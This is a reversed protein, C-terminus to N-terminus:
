PLQLNQANDNDLMLIIVLIMMMKLQFKIGYYAWTVKEFYKRKDM